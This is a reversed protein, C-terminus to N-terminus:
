QLVERALDVPNAARVAIRFSNRNLTALLRDDCTCFVAASGLEASAVHFADFSRLGLGILEATRQEVKADSLQALPLTELWARVRAARGPLPNLENELDLATGRVFELKGTASMLALVAESELHIRPRTQDDFPRKLCCM